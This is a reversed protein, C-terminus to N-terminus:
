FMFGIKHFILNLVAMLITMVIVMTLMSYQLRHQWFIWVQRLLYSNMAIMLALWLMMLKLWKFCHWGDWFASPIYWKQLEPNSNLEAWECTAWISNNYNFNIADAFGDFLSSLSWLVLILLLLRNM